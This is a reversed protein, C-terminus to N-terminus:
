GIGSPSDTILVAERHIRDRLDNVTEPDIVQGGNKGIQDYVVQKLHLKASESPYIPLFSVSYPKRLGRSSEYLLHSRAAAQAISDIAEMEKNALKRVLVINQNDSVWYISDRICM